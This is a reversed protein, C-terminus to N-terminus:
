RVVNALMDIQVLMGGWLRAEIATRVPYPPQMYQLYVVNLDAWRPGTSPRPRPRKLPLVPVLLLSPTLCFLSARLKHRARIVALGENAYSSCRSDTRFYTAEAPM